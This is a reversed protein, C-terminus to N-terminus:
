ALLTDPDTTPRDCAFDRCVYATAAGRLPAMDRVWPMLRAVSEQAAGPVLPVVTTFPRYRAHAANWMESRGPAGPEGVVVIQGAPALATSLASAMFPVARGLRQL